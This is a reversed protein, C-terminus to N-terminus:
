GDQLLDDGLGRVPQVAEGALFGLVLHGEGLEAADRLLLVGIRLHERNLLLVRHLAGPRLSERLRLPAGGEHSGDALAGLRSLEGGTSAGRGLTECLLEPVSQTSPVPQFRHALPTRM